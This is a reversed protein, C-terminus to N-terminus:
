VIRTAHEGPRQHWWIEILLIDISEQSKSFDIIKEFIADINGSGYILFIGRKYGAHRRFATLTKLDKLINQSLANIPKVEIVAYNGSMDGPTHVLLDPKVNNLGNGRILQHGSKDVEGNIVYKNDKPWALRMQHYLEYCYVRERYIPDRGHIHLLFYIDTVGSTAKIITNSLWDM